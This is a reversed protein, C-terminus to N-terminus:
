MVWFGHKGRQLMAAIISSKTASVPSKIQWYHGPGGFQTLHWEFYHKCIDCSFNYIKVGSHASIGTVATPAKKHSRYIMLISTFGHKWPFTPNQSFLERESAWSLQCNRQIAMKAIINYWGSYTNTVHPVNLPWLHCSVKSWSTLSQSTQLRLLLQSFHIM